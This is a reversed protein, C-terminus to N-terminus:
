ADLAARSAINGEHVLEGRGRGIHKSRLVRESVARLRLRDLKRLRM